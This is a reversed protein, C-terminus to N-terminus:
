YIDYDPNTHIPTSQDPNTRIPRSLQRLLHSIPSPHHFRSFGCECKRTRISESNPNGRIPEPLLPALLFSFSSHLSRSGRVGLTSNDYNLHISPSAAEIQRVTSHTLLSRHCWHFFCGNLLSSFIVLLELALGNLLPQVTSPGSLNDGM